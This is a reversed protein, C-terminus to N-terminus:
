TKLKFNYENYFPKSLDIFKTKFNNKNCWQPCIPKDHSYFIIRILSNFEDIRFLFNRKSQPKGPFLDWSKKHWEYHGKTELVVNSNYELSLQSIWMNKRGSELIGRGM